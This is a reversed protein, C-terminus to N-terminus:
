LSRLIQIDSLRIQASHQPIHLFTNAELNKLPCAPACHRRLLSVNKQLVGPVNQPLQLKHFIQNQLAIHGQHRLLDHFFDLGPQFEQRIHAWLSGELFSGKETKKM